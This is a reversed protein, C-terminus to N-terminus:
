WYLWYFSCLNPKQNGRSVSVCVCFCAYVGLIMRTHVRAYLWACVCARVRVCVCACVRCAERNQRWSCPHLSDNALQNASPAGDSAKRRLVGPAEQTLHNGQRTSQWSLWANPPTTVARSPKQTCLCLSPSVGSWTSSVVDVGPRRTRRKSPSLILSTMVRQNSNSTM